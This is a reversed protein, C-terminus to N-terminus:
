DSPDVLKMGPHAAVDLVLALNSLFQEQLTLMEVGRGSARSKRLAEYERLPKDVLARSEPPLYAKVREYTRRGELYKRLIQSTFDGTHQKWTAPIEGVLEWFLQDEVERAIREIRRHYGELLALERHRKPVWFRAWVAVGSLILAAFAMLDSADPM